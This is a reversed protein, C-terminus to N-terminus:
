AVAHKRAPGPAPRRSLDKAVLTASGDPSGDAVIKFGLIKALALMAINERLILGELRHLGGVTAAAIVLQMLQKGIGFGQWEDAVVVAFEGVGEEATPSYRAVGIQKECDDAMHTAIVAYSLPYEPNTLKDLMHPPLERLGSFFRLYRSRDSLGTVFAQEIEADEPGIMRYTIQTGDRLAVKATETRPLGIAGPCHEQLRNFLYATLLSKRVVNMAGANLAQQRLKPTVERSVAITPICYQENCIDSLLAEPKVGPFDLGLLLIGNDLEGARIAKLFDPAAEYGCVKIGYSHLLAELGASFTPDPDVVYIMPQRDM